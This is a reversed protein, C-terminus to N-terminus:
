TPVAFMNGTCFPTNVPYAKLKEEIWVCQYGKDCDNKNNHIDCDIINSPYKIDFPYQINFKEIPIFKKICILIFGIVFIFILQNDM